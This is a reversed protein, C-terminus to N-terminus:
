KIKIYKNYDTAMEKLLSLMNDILLNIIETHKLVTIDIKGDDKQYEIAKEDIKLIANITTIVISSVGACVIDKGSVDYGSHGNIFIKNILDDNKTISIKIM